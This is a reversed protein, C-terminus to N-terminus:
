SCSMSTMSAEFQWLRTDLGSCLFLRALVSHRLFTDFFSLVASRDDPSFTGMVNHGSPDDHVIIWM